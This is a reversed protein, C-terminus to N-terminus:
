IRCFSTSLRFVNWSLNTPFVYRVSDIIKMGTHDINLILKIHGFFCFNYLDYFLVHSTAEYMSLVVSVCRVHFSSLWDVCASYTEHVRWKLARIDHKGDEMYLFVPESITLGKKLSSDVICFPWCVSWDRVFWSWICLFFFFFLLLSPFSLFFLFRVRECVYLTSMPCVLGMLQSRKSQAGEWVVCNIFSLSRDSPLM